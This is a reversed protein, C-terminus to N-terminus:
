DTKKGRKRKREGNDDVRKAQSINDRRGIWERERERKM